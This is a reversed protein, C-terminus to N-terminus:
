NNISKNIKLYYDYFIKNNKIISAFDFLDWLFFPYMYLIYMICIDERERDIKKHRSDVKCMYM